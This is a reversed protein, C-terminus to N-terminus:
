RNDLQARVAHLGERTILYPSGERSAILRRKRLRRFTSLTCDTLVWGERTICAVDVIKGKSDKEVRIRGGRALAHLTRQEFKSINM